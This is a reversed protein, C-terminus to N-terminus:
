TECASQPISTAPASGCGYGVALGTWRRWRWHLTLFPTMLVDLRDGFRILYYGFLIAVGALSIGAFLELGRRLLRPTLALAM